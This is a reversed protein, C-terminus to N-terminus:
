RVDIERVIGKADFDVLIHKSFNRGLIRSFLYKGPEIKYLFISIGQKDTKLKSCKLSQMYEELQKKSMIGVTNKSIIEAYDEESGHIRDFTFKRKGNLIDEKEYVLLAQSFIANGLLDTIVGVSFAYPVKDQAICVEKLLVYRVKESSSYFYDMAEKDVFVEMEKQLLEIDSGSIEEGVKDRILAEFVSVDEPLECLDTINAEEGSRTLLQNETCGLLMVLLLLCCMYKSNCYVGQRKTDKYATHAKRTYRDLIGQYNIM